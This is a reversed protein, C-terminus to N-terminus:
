VKEAMFEAAFNRLEEHLMEAHTRGLPSGVLLVDGGFGEPAMVAPRGDLGNTLLVRQGTDAM